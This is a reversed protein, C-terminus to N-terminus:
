LAFPYPAISRQPPLHVSRMLWVERRFDAFVNIDDRSAMSTLKLQKVAVRKGRWKGEYVSAYAGEGIVKGLDLDQLRVLGNIQPGICSGM